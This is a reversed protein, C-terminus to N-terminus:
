LPGPNSLRTLPASVASLMTSAAPLSAFAQGTRVDVADPAVDLLPRLAFPREHLRPHPVRLGEEDIAEGEIWLLDLDITRPGWRTEGTRERGLEREIALVRDLVSRGDLSTVVLVAANLYDGQPPGGEAATEYAVSARLVFLERDERIRAIAAELHALRDGVNSGLGIVIRRVHEVESGTAM